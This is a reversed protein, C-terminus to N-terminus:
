FSKEFKEKEETTMECEFAEQFGKNSKLLVHLFKNKNRADDLIKPVKPHTKASLFRAVAVWFLQRNTLRNAAIQLEKGGSEEWQVYNEYAIQNVHEGNIQSLNVGSYLVHIILTFFTAMNFFRPRDHHFFPYRLWM